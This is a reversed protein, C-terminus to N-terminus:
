YLKLKNRQIDKILMVATRKLDPINGKKILNKKIAISTLTKESNKSIKIQYYKELKTKPIMEILDLAITEPDDLKTIASKLVLKLENKEKFPIVGPTDILLIKPTIKIWQKGKTYGAEASTPASKRGKLANILSSKGINPYGLVGVKLYFQKEKKGWKKIFEKKTKDYYKMIERILTRTNIRQKASFPIAKLIKAAKNVKNKDVLDSKTIVRIFPKKAERLRGEIVTNKTEYPFRADLLEIVVDSEETIKDVVKWFKGQTHKKKMKVGFIIAM